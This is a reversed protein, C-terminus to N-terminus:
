PAFNFNERSVNTTRSALFFRFFLGARCILKTQSSAVVLVVVVVVVAVAVIEVTTTLESM